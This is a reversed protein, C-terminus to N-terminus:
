LVLIIVEAVFPIKMWQRKRSKFKLDQMWVSTCYQGTKRRTSKSCHCYHIFWVFVKVSFWFLDKPDKKAYKYIFADTQFIIKHFRVFIWSMWSMWVIRIKMKEIPQRISNFNQSTERFEKELLHQFNWREIKFFLFLKTGLVFIKYTKTWILVFFSQKSIWNETFTKSWVVLQYM